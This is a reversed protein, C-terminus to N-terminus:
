PFDLYFKLNPEFKKLIELGRHFHEIEIKQYNPMMAECREDYKYENAEKKVARAAETLTVGKDEKVTLIKDLVSALYCAKHFCQFDTDSRYSSYYDIGSPVYIFNDEEGKAIYSTDDDILLTSSIEQETVIFGELKKKRQGYNGKPQYLENEEDSKYTTDICHQRSFVKISNLAEASDKGLSKTILKNVLETNREEIGSSFFYILDGRNYLWQFLSYFGPFIMHIYGAATLSMEKKFDEGFAEVIEKCKNEIDYSIGEAITGDIDFVFINKM